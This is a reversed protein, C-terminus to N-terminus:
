TEDDCHTWLRYSANTRTAIDSLCRRRHACSSKRSGCVCAFHLGGVQLAAIYQEHLESIQQPSPHPVRDVPIPTGVVTLVPRRFPLFGGRGFILPVSYGFWQM